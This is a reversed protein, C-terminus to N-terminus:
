TAIWPLPQHSGDSAAKICLDPIELAIGLTRDFGCYAHQDLVGGATNGLSGSFIVLCDLKTCGRRSEVTAAIVFLYTVTASTFTKHNM